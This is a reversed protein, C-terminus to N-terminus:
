LTRDRAADAPSGRRRSAAPKAPSAVHRLWREYAQERFLWGVATVSPKSVVAALYEEGALPGTGVLGVGCFDAQLMQEPSPPRSVVISTPAFRALAAAQRLRVWWSGSSVQISLVEVAPQLRRVLGDSTREVMGAPATRVRRRDHEALAHEPALQDVPLHTLTDLLHLRTIAGLGAEVRRRHEGLDIALVADGKFGSIRASAPVAQVALLDSKLSM